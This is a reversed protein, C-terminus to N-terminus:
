SAMGIRDDGDVGVSKGCSWNCFSYHGLLKVLFTSANSVQINPELYDREMEFSVWSPILENGVYARLIRDYDEPTTMMNGALGPNLGGLWQTSKLQLPQILYKQLM